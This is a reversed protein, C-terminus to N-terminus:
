RKLLADVDEAIALSSTLGPSEIGLLNVFGPFGDEMRIVFDQFKLGPPGLKPRDMVNSSVERAAYRIGTYDGTLSNRDISPLYETIAAYAEDLRGGDLTYDTPDDIWQIDPGFKVRGALDLTLHTGL